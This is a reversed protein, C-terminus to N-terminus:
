HEFLTNPDLGAKVYSHQGELQAQRVFVCQEGGLTMALVGSKAVVVDFSSLVLLISKQNQGKPWLKVNQETMRDLFLDHKGVSVKLSNQGGGRM